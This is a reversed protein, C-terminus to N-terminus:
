QKGSGQWDAIKKGPAREQITTMGVLTNATPLPTYVLCDQAKLANIEM